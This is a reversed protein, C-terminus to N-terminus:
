FIGYIELKFNSHSEIYKYLSKNKFSNIITLFHDDGDPAWLNIKMLNIASDSMLYKNEQEILHIFFLYVKRRGGVQWVLVM